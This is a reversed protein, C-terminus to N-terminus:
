VNVNQLSYNVIMDSHQNTLDLRNPQTLMNSNNHSDPVLASENRDGHTHDFDYMPPSHMRQNMMRHVRDNDVM